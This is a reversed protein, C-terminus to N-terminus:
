TGCELKAIQMQVQIFCGGTNEEFEFASRPGNVAGSAGQSEAATIIKAGRIPVEIGGFAAAPALM